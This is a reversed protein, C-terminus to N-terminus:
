SKAIRIDDFEASGNWVRLYIGGSCAVARSIPDVPKGDLAVTVQTGQVRLRWEHWRDDIPIPSGDSFRTQPDIYGSQDDAADNPYDPHRLGRFAHDYQIARGHPVGGADVHMGPGIAYGYSASGTNPLSRVRVL